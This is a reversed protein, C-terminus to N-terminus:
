FCTAVVQTTTDKTCVGIDGWGQAFYPNGRASFAYYVRYANGPQVQTAVLPVNITVNGGASGYYNHTGLFTGYEDTVLYSFYCNTGFYITFGYNVTGTNWGIPNTGPFVTVTGASTHNWSATDALSDISMTYLQQANITYKNIQWDNDQTGVWRVLNGNTDVIEMGTFWYSPKDKKCISILALVVIVLVIHKMFYFYHNLPFIPYSFIASNISM